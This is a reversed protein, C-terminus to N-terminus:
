MKVILTDPVAHQAGAHRAACTSGDIVKLASYCRGNVRSPALM